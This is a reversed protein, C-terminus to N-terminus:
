IFRDNIQGTNTTGLVPLERHKPPASNILSEKFEFNIVFLDGKSWRRSIVRSRFDYRFYQRHIALPGDRIQNQIALTLTRGRSEFSGPSFRDLPDSFSENLHEPLETGAFILQLGILGLPVVIWLARRQWDGTSYPSVSESPVAATM